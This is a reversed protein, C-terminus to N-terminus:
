EGEKINFQKDIVDVTAKFVEDPTKNAVDIVEIEPYLAPLITTYLTQAAAQIDKQSEFFDPQWDGDFKHFNELHSNTYVLTLEPTYLIYRQFFDSLENIFNVTTPVDARLMAGQYALTSYFYRDLLVVDYYQIASSIDHQRNYIDLGFLMALSAPSFSYNRNLCFAISQKVFDTSPFAFIKTTYCEHALYNSLKLSLTTKGVGDIGELCILMKM